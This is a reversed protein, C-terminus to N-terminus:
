VNESLRTIGARKSSEAMSSTNASTLPKNGVRLLVVASGSGARFM